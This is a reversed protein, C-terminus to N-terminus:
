QDIKVFDMENKQYLRVVTNFKNQRNLERMYAHAHKPNM